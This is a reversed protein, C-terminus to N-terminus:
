LKCNVITLHLKDIKLADKRTKFEKTFILNWPGKKYTTRHFRAKEPDVNNHMNVRMELDETSGTYKRGKLNKIVYVYYM